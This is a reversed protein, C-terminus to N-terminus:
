GRLIRAPVLVGLVLLMLGALLSARHGRAGGQQERYPGSARGVLHGPVAMGIGFYYSGYGANHGGAVLVRWDVRYIGGALAPLSKTRLTRGTPDQPDLTAARSVQADDGEPAGALGLTRQVTVSSSPDLAQSFRVAIAEPPRPLSGGAAPSSDVYRPHPGVLQWAGFCLMLAGWGLLVSRVAARALKRANGPAFSLAPAAPLLPSATFAQEVTVPAPQGGGPFRSPEEAVSGHRVRFRALTAEFAQRSAQPLESVRGYVPGSPAPNALPEAPDRVPPLDERAPSPFWESRTPEEVEPEPPAGAPDAILAREARRGDHAAMMVWLCLGYAALVAAYGLATAMMAERGRALTGLVMTAEPGGAAQIHPVAQDVLRGFLDAGVLSAAVFTTQAVVVRQSDMRFRSSRAVLLLLLFPPVAILFLAALTELFPVFLVAAIPLVVWGTWDSARSLEAGLGMRGLISAIEKWLDFLKGSLAVAIAPFLLTPVLAAATWGRDLSEDDEPAPVGRAGAGRKILGLVIGGVTVIAGILSGRMVALSLWEPATSRGPLAFWLLLASVIGLGQFLAIMGTLGFVLTLLREVVARLLFM